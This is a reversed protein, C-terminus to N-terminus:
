NLRQVYSYRLRQFYHDSIHVVRVFYWVEHVIVFDVVDNKVLSVDIDHSSDKNLL